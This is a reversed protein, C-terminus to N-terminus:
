REVSLALRIMFAAKDINQRLSFLFLRCVNFIFCFFSFSNAFHSLVPQIKAVAAAHIGWRIGLNGVQMNQQTKTLRQRACKVASTTPKAWTTQSSSPQRRM